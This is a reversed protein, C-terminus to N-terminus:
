WRQPRWVPREDWPPTDGQDDAHAASNGVERWPQSARQPAPPDPQGASPSRPSPRRSMRVLGRVTQEDSRIAATMALLHDTLAMSEALTFVTGIAVRPDGAELRAITDEHVGVRQAAIARTEGRALRAAKIAQGLEVLIGQIATSTM